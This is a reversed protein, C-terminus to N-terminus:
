DRVLRVSGTDRNLARYEPLTVDVPIAGATTFRYVARETRVVLTDAPSADPTRGIRTVTDEVPSPTAPRASPSTDVGTRGPQTARRPAPPFLVSSGVVALGSLLLALALRRDM